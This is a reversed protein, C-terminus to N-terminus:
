LENKFKQEYSYATIALNIMVILKWDFWKLGFFIFGFFSLCMMLAYAIKKM